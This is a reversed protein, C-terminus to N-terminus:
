LPSPFDAIDKSSLVSKAMASPQTSSRKLTQIVNKTFALLVTTVTISLVLKKKQIQKNPLTSSLQKKNAKKGGTNKFKRVKNSEM